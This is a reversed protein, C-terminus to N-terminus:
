KIQLFKDKYFLEVDVHTIIAAIEEKTVGNNKANQLHNDVYLRLHPM